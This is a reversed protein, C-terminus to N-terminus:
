AQGDTKAEPELAPMPLAAMYDILPRYNEEMLVGLDRLLMLGEIMLRLSQEPTDLMAKWENPTRFLGLSVLTDKLVQKGDLTGFYVKRYQEIERWRHEALAPM